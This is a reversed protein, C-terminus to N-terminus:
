NDDAQEDSAAPSPTLVRRADSLSDPAIDQLVAMFDLNVWGRARHLALPIPSGPEHRAYYACIADIARIVDDRSRISGPATSETVRAPQAAPTADSSAPEAAPEPSTDGAWSTAVRRMRALLEHLPDFDPWDATSGANAKFAAEVAQIAETIESLLALKAALQAKGDREMILTFGVPAEAPSPFGEIDNLGFAGNRDKVLPVAALPSLFARRHALEACYFNRVRAGLDDITPYVANWDQLLGALLKAGGAVQELDGLKAGARCLYVALWVDKSRRLLAIVEDTTAHWDPENATIDDRLAAAFIDDIARRDDDDSLDVGAPSEESIPALLAEVDIRM